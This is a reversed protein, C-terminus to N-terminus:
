KCRWLNVFEGKITVTSKVYGAAKLIEAVRMNIGNNDYKFKCSKTIDSIRFLKGNSALEEAAKLVLDKNYYVYKKNIKTQQSM